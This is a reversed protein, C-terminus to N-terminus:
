LRHGKQREVRRMFEQMIIRYLKYGLARDEVGADLSPNDNVEIVQCQDGFQKLDVGYLGDGVARAARVAVDLVKAPVQEVPLTEAMGEVLRGRNDRNIIQWHGKAMFYRCAYLAQGNLVGIRWDFETPVYAQALVLDSQNFFRELGHKLKEESDVKIVAQSFAGDPQKLVCPLGLEQIVADASGKHVIMTRPTPIKHRQLLEALFVKNTCRLISDPDDIVVAGEIAARRAFRYTHHNVLTTERIFLADFEGLRGYDEPTIREVAFGVERAARTFLRIAREDSPPKEEKPNLLIALDFRYRKRSPVRRGAFHEAATQYLFERHTQPIEALPIPSLSVLEWDERLKFRARLLPAPFLNFLARALREYRKALNQGFYISLVFEDSQLGKLSKQILEDIETTLLRQNSRTKLDQMTLVGPLPRHGRAEAQLSVYYGISQYRYSRCLNIIRCRQFREPNSLYDLASVIQAGPLEAQWDSTKEVIILWRM